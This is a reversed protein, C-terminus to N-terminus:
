HYLLETWRGDKVLTKKLAQWEDESGISDAMIKDFADAVKEQGALYVYTNPERILEAAESVHENLANQLGEASDGFYGGAVANFAKFTKEDYYQTLDKNEDNMYLMDMGTKAGYFLRVKGNWGGRQGYIHQMFARFPAIGTGTGIMLLNSTDDKPIKFPSRFPGTIRVKDGPKANCLYNSAVGPYREGSFEDTYFCRKVLLDIDVGESDGTGRSNAISYRRHHYENGFEHPGPVLVGISQGEVYRFAPEDIHLVLHRVEETSDPTMRSTSKIVADCATEVISEISQDQSAETMM